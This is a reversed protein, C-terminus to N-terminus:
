DLLGIQALSHAPTLTRVLVRLVSLSLCHLYAHPYEHAATRPCTLSHSCHVCLSGMKCISPVRNRESLTPVHDTQRKCAVWLAVLTSAVSQLAHRMAYASQKVEPAQCCVKVVCALPSEGPDCVEWESYANGM